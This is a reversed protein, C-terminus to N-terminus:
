KPAEDSRNDQTADDESEDEDDDSDQDARDKDPDIVQSKSIAKFTVPSNFQTPYISVAISEDSSVPISIAGAGEAVLKRM